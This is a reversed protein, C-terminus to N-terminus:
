REGLVERCLQTLKAASADWTYKKEQRSGEEVLSKRYDKDHLVRFIGEAMSVDDLPDVLCAANGVVEPLSAANSTM